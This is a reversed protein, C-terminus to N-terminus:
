LLNLGYTNRGVENGAEDLELVVKDYEYLYQTREGNVEKAVRLGEGNYINIVTTEGAATKILQNVLDYTNTITVQGNKSTTLQNGNNDYSYTTTETVVDDTQTTITTLRNQENYSYENEVTVGEQTITEKARNGAYDYTYTTIKGNPETVKALRNLEDYEYNTTGKIVGNIMEEKSTQNGANDYAYIYTDMITGDAKINKLERLQNNDYYTYEEKLGNPYIVSERNGNDYYTYTTTQNDATVYKLRGAKDYTKITINGKPNTATETINGKATERTIDYQYTTTGINPVAKTIVRNFQDYQRTTTGTSDTITLQNGNNDYTCTTTTKEETKIPNEIREQTLRGYIDYTYATINGNRDKKTKINGDAYYTYTETKASVGEGQHDIKEKVKNAVNYTYTTINGKGDKQTLMNGNNDYTYTTVPENKANKVSLIQNNWNYTYTTTNLEGETKTAINGVDDYTQSTSHGQSDVTEILRNNKDYYYRTPTESCADYSETQVNNRNYVLKEILKQYPDRKEILRNLPDYKYTYTNERWDTQSLQNNNKDYTYTSTKGAKTATKGEIKTILRNLEDYTYETTIEEGNERIEFRKNGNVDYKYKITIKETGDNKQQTYSLIKGQNDYTFLEVKGLNNQQKKLNGMADYQYTITQGKISDDEPNQVTRIEGLANYTYTTTNGEGDTQTLLNGIYDYINTQITQEEIKKNILNGAHDYTYKTEIQKANTESIKRGLTDYKYKNTYSLDKAKTTPDLIETLQNALNYKYETDYNMADIAKTINGNGDYKYSKEIVTIWTDTESDKYINQKNTIRDMKDYTYETRNMSDLSQGVLYNEPSVEVKLRRGRDYSYATIGGKVNKIEELQGQQTYQYKTTNGKADTQTLPNGEWNYTTTQKITVNNGNEDQGLQSISTQRDMNDYTYTTTIQDPTTKTKINGNKDYTYTTKLEKATTDNFNNGYIDGKKIYQKQTIPKGLHNNVYEILIKNQSDTYTAEKNLNGDLDYGYEIKRGEDDITSKLKGNKYYEYTTEIYSTASVGKDVAEKGIKEKTINGTKDYVFEKYKYKTTGDVKEFPIWQQTLRNLGDYSYYITNGRADTKNKILGNKYYQTTEPEANTDPNEQKILRGAYDYTYKTEATYNDDLYKKHNIETKGYKPIEYVYEELIVETDNATEKFYTKTLRNLKDYEYRYSAGNQKEEKIINGYCDYTNKTSNNEPDIITKIQGMNIDTYDYRYGHNGSYTHSTKNDLASNYLNPSVEKTKRGYEDYTIRTTEENNQGKNYIIREQRGNQDYEYSVNFKNKTISNLWGIKSHENTTVQNTEPDSITKINGYQDYTYTVTNGVPAPYTISKLLGKAKCGFQQSEAETYYNYKTISFQTEEMGEEYKTTGNLPQAKKILNIKQSDYIYYTWKGEEDRESTINNKEDYTFQKYSDTEPNIIKTVNGRADRNYITRNRNRDTFSDIEKYKSYGNEDIAYETNIYGNEADITQTTNFSIDYWQTTKRGNSDTIETKGTYSLYTYTHVNNFRDTNEHVRGQDEGETYYTVSEIRKSNEKVESLLLVPEEEGELTYSTYSYKTNNGTPDTVKVLKKNEYQYDVTRGLPDIIKTILGDANYLMDFTRDVQDTISNIKGTEEEVNIKVTNCNKVRMWTLWGNSSFRYTYQNKTTLMHTGDANKVLENRSDNATYTGDENLTFSLVKGQPMWVNKQKNNKENDEIKGQYGFTWGKGLISNKRNDQSNYTRTMNIQFGPAIMIMDSYTRSFNGTGINVGEIGFQSQED